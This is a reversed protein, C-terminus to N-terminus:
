KKVAAGAPPATPDDVLLRSQVEHSGKYFPPFLILLARENRKLQLAGAYAQYSRGGASTRLAIKASSGAAVWGM